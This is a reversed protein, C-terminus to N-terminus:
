QRELLATRLLLYINNSCFENFLIVNWFYNVGMVCGKLKGGIYVM